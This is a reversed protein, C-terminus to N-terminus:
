RNLRAIGFDMLRSTLQARYSARRADRQEVTSKQYACFQEKTTKWINLDALVIQGSHFSDFIHIDTRPPPASALLTDRENSEDDEDTVTATSGREGSPNLTQMEIDDQQELETSHRVGREESDLDQGTSPAPTPQTPHVVAPAAGDKLRKRTIHATLHVFQLAMVLLDFLVLTIRSAPGKQGIFDMALGGHLYGRTAETGTTPVFWIHLGICLLNAGLVAGVFPQQDPPQVFTPPKPTLLVFQVLSRLM